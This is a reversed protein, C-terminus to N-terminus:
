HGTALREALTEPDRKFHLVALVQLTLTPEDIVYWLGYPFVRMAYCRVPEARAPYLYPRSRIARLAEGFETRFRQVQEPAEQKYWAIAEALDGKTALRLRVTWRGQTM